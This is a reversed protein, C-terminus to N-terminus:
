ITHRLGQPKPTWGWEQDEQILGELAPKQLPFPLHSLPGQPTLETTPASDHSQGKSVCVENEEDTFLPSVHLTCATVHLAAQLCLSLFVCYTSTFVAAKEASAQPGELCLRTYRLSPTKHHSATHQNARVTYCVAGFKLSKALLGKQLQGQLNAGQAM